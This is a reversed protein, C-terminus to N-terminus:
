ECAHISCYGTINAYKQCNKGNKTIGSCYKEGLHNVICMNHSEKITFEQTPNVDLDMYDMSKKFKINSKNFKKLNCDRCLIQLNDASTKGDKSEAIIHDFHAEPHYNLKTPPTNEFIKKAIKSSFCFQKCVECATCYKLGNKKCNKWYINKKIKLPISRKKM